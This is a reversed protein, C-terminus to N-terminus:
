NERAAAPFEISDLWDRITARAEDGNGSAQALSNVALDIRAAAVDEPPGFPYAVCARLISLVNVPVVGNRNAWNEIDQAYKDLWAM